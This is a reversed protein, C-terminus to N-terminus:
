DLGYAPKNTRERVLFRKYTKREIEEIGEINYTVGDLKFWYARSIGSAEAFHMTFTEMSQPSVQDGQIKEMGTKYNRAVWVKKLETETETPQGAADMTSATSNYYVTIQTDLNVM